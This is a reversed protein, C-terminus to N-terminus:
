IEGCVDCQEQLFASSHIVKEIETQKYFVESCSYGENFFHYADGKISVLINDRCRGTIIRELWEMCVSVIRLSVNSSYQIFSGACGRNNKTIKQGPYSFATADYLENNKSNRKFFCEYCGPYKNYIIALHCGVDLPENWLYVCPAQIKKKHIWNNLWRNLNHNGTASIILDYNELEVSGDEIVDEANSDFTNIHVMPFDSTCKIRLAEAKYKGVFEISLYHRYLNEAKFIDGDILDINKYGSKVLEACLYGGISGCGILLISNKKEQEEKKIRQSLFEEDIRAIDIAIIKKQKGVAKITLNFDTVELQYDKLYVGICVSEGMPEKIEFILVKINCLKSKCRKVEELPVEKLIKEIFNVQLTKRFDPPLIYDRPEIHCFLGNQQAEAVKWLSFYESEAAAFIVANQKKKQLFSQNENKKLKMTLLPDSYKIIQTKHNQPLAFKMYRKPSQYSWYSSFERVLEIDNDEYLGKELIIKTRQICQKFLGEFNYDILVGELDFLCIKGDAEIHPMFPLEKYDVLFISVLDRMWTEPIGIFIKVKQNKLLLDCQMGNSFGKERFLSDNPDIINSIYPIDLLIDRVRAMDIM